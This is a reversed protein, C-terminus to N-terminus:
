SKNKEEMKEQWTKAKVIKLDKIFEKKPNNSRENLGQRINEKSKIHGYELTGPTTYPDGKIVGMQM